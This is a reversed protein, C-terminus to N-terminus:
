KTETNKKAAPKKATSKAATKKEADGDVAATDDTKKAASKKATKEPKGNPKEAKETEDKDLVFENNAIVFDFLKDTVVDNAAFDEPAMGRAKALREYEARLKNDSELKAKIEEESAELKEAEIIARMVNRVKINLEANPRTDKRYQEPSSNNYKLYDEASIGYHSLNHEMDHYLRDVEADIIKDAIKCESNDTAAKVAADIRENRERKKSEAQLDARLGAKYEDVTAYKTHDAVFADDLVPIQEERVEKVTVHFVADKGKLNEAHYEDPFKVKVDREEGKVAGVLQDEFGPIFSNSGLKLEHDQAKGGDFEAGDVTGVFDIVTTDGLKAPKDTEVLRSAQKLDADIRAQVDEDSVNYEIKPLKIGKYQGLKIVPGLTVTITFGFRDGEQPKAFAVEPQGFVDLEPHASLQEYCATNICEDMADNGFVDPGYHLEIMRRPAKGPRFGPIKYKGKTRQYAKEVFTNWEADDVSVTFVAELEKKELTSKM